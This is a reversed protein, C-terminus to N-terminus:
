GKLFDIVFGQFEETFRKKEVKTPNWGHEAGIMNRLPVIYKDGDCIFKAREKILESVETKTKTM